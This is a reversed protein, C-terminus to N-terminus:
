AVAEWLQASVRFILVLGSIFMISLAYSDFRQISIIKLFHKAVLMGVMVGLGITIGYTLLESNLAGFHFYAVLKTSHMMLSSVGRTAVLEEKNLGYNLFFPNQVPGVAGIISSFLTTVFGLMPFYPLHMIFSKKKRGFGFQFVTSVLFLGVTFEILLPHMRTYVYAGIIAGPIIGPLLWLAVKWNIYKWFLFIGFPSAIANGTTLIPAVLHPGVLFGVLPVLLLAGGGAAMISIYGTVLGFILLLFIIM